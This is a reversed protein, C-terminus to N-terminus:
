LPYLRIGIIFNRGPAAIGSSYPIYFRDLINQIALNLHIQKYIKIDAICNITFWKTAGEPSYLNTKAKESPALNKFSIGMSYNSFLSFNILRNKYNLKINGFNPPIHRLSNNDSDIGKSFNFSSLLNIDKSVKLKINIISGYINAYAANQMSQVKSLSGDYFISDNGKYSFDKRVIINDVFSTYITAQFQIIKNISKTLSLEASYVYEPKLDKNPVVVNGPESDFVKAIDDLNPARFGTSLNFNIQTNQSPLWAAGISGNPAHNLLNLTNFPLQLISNDFSSNLYFISYRFGALLNLKDNYKYKFNTYLGTNFYHNFGNPYRTQIQYKTKDIINQAFGESNVNNFGLDIGYYINVKEGVKKNFDINTTILDVTETRHRFLPSKYKRDHRSEEFQQYAIILKATDYIKTHKFLRIRLNHMIWKQPGYFWEAYKLHNSKWQTLRDYRNINSTTSFILSYTIDINNNPKYRFKQNINWIKFMSPIMLNTQQVAIMSDNATPSPTVFYKRNGFEPYDGFHKKGALLNSFNSYLLQTHSSFNSWKLDVGFSITQELNASSTRYFGEIDTELKNSNSFNAEKTHFDMVGGLADSGYTVSGPGFILDTHGLSNPDINLSNQLNGSRFIANNMRVGDVVILISNAAFGRMMPSGGGMQSKQLFINGSAGLLDPTSQPNTLIADNEDIEQISFPIESSNQEWKNATITYRSLQITIETLKIITNAKRLTDTNILVSNYYNHQIELIHNRLILSNINAKGFKDTLIYQIKATDSIIVGAIPNLTKSDIVTILQANVNNHIIFTFILLIYYVLKM